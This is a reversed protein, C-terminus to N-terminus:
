RWARRGRGGAAVTPLRRGSLRGDTDEDRRRSDDAPELSSESIAKTAGAPRGRKPKRVVGGEDCKDAANPEGDTRELKEILRTARDAEVMIELLAKALTPKLEEFTALIKKLGEIVPKTLALKEEDPLHESNEIVSDLAGRMEEFNTKVVFEAAHLLDDQAKRYDM